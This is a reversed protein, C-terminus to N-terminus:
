RSCRADDADPKSFSIAARTGSLSKLSCRIDPKDPAVVGLSPQEIEFVAEITRDRQEAHPRERALEICRKELWLNLAALDPFKLRPVFLWNRMVNVQREVQGKEWGAAPTCAEPAFLYHSALSLFRRNFLRDKGVGVKTVATKMNDYIGRRPVGKFFAFGRVHADFLMEHSEDPYARVYPKRSYCLRMQAVKLKVVQGGLEVQETSWDSQFAEGCAFTLPIFVDSPIEEAQTRALRILATVRDYSGDYGLQKLAEFLRQGSRRQKRPLAADQKLWLRLTPEYDDLKSVRARRSYELEAQPDRLYKRITTRSLTTRKAIQRISLGDRFHWRRIKGLVDM